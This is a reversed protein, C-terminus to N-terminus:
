KRYKNTPQYTPMPNTKSQKILDYFMKEWDKALSDLDFNSKAYEQLQIRDENNDNQMASIVSTIFKDKYTDSTWDGDILTGRNSVTENLAAISSTVIRLGAAQAEMATICSTETFWTPHAWVGASLFQNALEDQSVRDHFVVGLPEMQKIQNKLRAILDSQAPDFRASFEWNKFGYFLHLEAQPVSAKIKPWCDLLIPWSRDPSSSNVVKFKNRKINKNFRSLDIGNRTVLVHDDSVNHTNIINQKHWKTLALIKNAKLLAENTSCVAYIDHVWLLKIKAEINYQDLLMDARRSVVLVDCKLNNYKATQLYEVGDYFGEYNGCSNYVRVKHGFSALRKAQEMLMTESGGIGNTKITQPTWIEVGDGAFFIIDLNLSSTAINAIINTINEPTYYISPKNTISNKANNTIDIAKIISPSNKIIDPVNNLFIIAKDIEDYLVYQKWIMIIASELQENSINLPLSEFDYTSPIKWDDINSKNIFEAEAINNQQNVIESETVNVKKTLIAHIINFSPEDIEDVQKLKQLSSVINSTNLINEYIKKNLLLSSDNPNNKLATNVSDLATNLDGIKSLAFNYFKHIEYAREVPNIFLLTKTPPLSLGFKIFYVCKQWNKIEENKQALFYFIKGLAFYGEAWDEKLEITKFAWKLANELDNKILFIDVLKLAAMAREDDWGSLNIYKSLNQIAEETFGNNSYELGIYYLQRPDSDGVKEVYKKLIRLNRGTEPIKTGFQRQHKYIIDDHTYFICSNDNNILVEHVPNVWHFKNKDSVIRERYHVCTCQGNQDYSYEYPFIIGIGRTKAEEAYNNILKNFLDGNVIIDDADMWAVWPQTALEFSRQRAKSFDEILGTESDNCDTYIEFVDAYKKAIEQTKGDTSGTDVIVIEKVYNRISLLSQELLPENKVILCMSVPARVEEAM